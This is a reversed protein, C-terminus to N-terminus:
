EHIGKQYISQGEPINLNLTKIKPYIIAHYMSFM